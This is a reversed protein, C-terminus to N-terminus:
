DLQSVRAGTWSLQAKGQSSINKMKGYEFLICDLYRPDKGIFRAFETYRNEPIDIQLFKKMVGIVHRDGKVM